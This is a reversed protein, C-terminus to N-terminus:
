SNCANISLFNPAQPGVPHDPTLIFSGSLSSSITSSPLVYFGGKGGKFGGKFFTSGFAYRSFAYRGYLRLSQFRLSRILTAVTYAYRGYLRLSRILTAFM